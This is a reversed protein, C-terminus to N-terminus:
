NTINENPIQQSLREKKLLKEIALSLGDDENETIKFSISNENKM